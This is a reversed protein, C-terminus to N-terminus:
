ASCSGAAPARAGAVAAAGDVAGAAMAECRRGHVSSSATSVTRSNARATRRSGLRGLGERRAARELLPRLVDRLDDLRRAAAAEQRRGADRHLVRGVIPQAAEHQRRRQLAVGRVDGLEGDVRGVAPAAQRPRQDLLGAPAGAGGAAPPHRQEDRVVVGGRAVEVGREAELGHRVEEVRRALRGVAQAALARAFSPARRRAGPARAMADTAPQSVGGM